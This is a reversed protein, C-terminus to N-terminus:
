PSVPLGEACGAFYTREGTPSVVHHAGSLAGDIRVYTWVNGGIDSFKDGRRMADVRVRPGASWKPDVQSTM